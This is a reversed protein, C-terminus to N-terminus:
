PKMRGRFLCLCHSIAFDIWKKGEELESRAVITLSFLNETCLQAIKQTVKRTIDLFLVLIPRDTYFSLTVVFSVSFITSSQVSYRKKVITALLSHTLPLFFISRNQLRERNTSIERTFSVRLHRWLTFSSGKEQITKLPGFFREVEKSQFPVVDSAFIWPWFSKKGFYDLWFRFNVKTFFFKPTLPVKVNDLWHNTLAKM